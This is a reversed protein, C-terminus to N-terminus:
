FRCGGMRSDGEVTESRLGVILKHFLGAGGLIGFVREVFLLVFPVPVVGKIVYLPVTGTTSM